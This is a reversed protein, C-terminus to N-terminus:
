EGRGRERAGFMVMMLVDMNRGLRKKVWDGQEGGGEDKVVDFVVVRGGPRLVPRVGELIRGAEEDPWDHLIFRLVVVDVGAMQNRALFDQEQFEVRGQVELPLNARGEAVPLPLDQVVVRGINPFSRALAVGLAGTNGGLDLVTSGAPLSAFPYNALIHSLSFAPNAQFGQMLLSYTASWTPSTSAWTASNLPTSFALNFATKPPPPSPNSSPPATPSPSTITAKTAEVQHFSAFLNIELQYRLTGRAIDSTAVHHSLPSHTISTPSTEHFWGSTTALRIIRTLTDLPVNRAKALDTYTISGELPVATFIDFHSLWRLACLSYIPLNTHHLLAETPPLLLLQLSHIASLLNNRDSLLNPPLPHPDPTKFSSALASSTKNISDVLDQFSM